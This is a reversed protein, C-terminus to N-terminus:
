GAQPPLCEPMCAAAVLDQGARGGLCAPPLHHHQRCRGPRDACPPQAAGQYAQGAASRIRAQEGDGCQDGSVERFGIMGGADDATM